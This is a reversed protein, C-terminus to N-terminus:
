MEHIGSDLNKTEAAIVASRFVFNNLKRSNNSSFVTKCIHVTIQAAALFQNSFKTNNNSYNDWTSFHSLVANLTIHDM